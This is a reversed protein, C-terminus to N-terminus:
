LNVKSATPYFDIGTVTFDDFRCTKRINLKFITELALRHANSKQKASDHKLTFLYKPPLRNGKSDQRLFWRRMGYRIPARAFNRDASTQSIIDVAEFLKYKELCIAHFSNDRDNEFIHINGVGYKEYDQLIILEEIVEQLSNGDYDFFLVHKGDSCRSSIGGTAYFHGNAINFSFGFPSYSTILTKNFPLELNFKFGGMNKVM